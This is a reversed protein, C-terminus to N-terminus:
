LDQWGSTECFWFKTRCKTLSCPVTAKLKLEFLAKHIVNKQSLSNQVFTCSDEEGHWKYCINCKM